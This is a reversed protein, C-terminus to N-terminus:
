SKSVNNLKGDLDTLPAVEEMVIQLLEVELFHCFKELEMSGVSGKPKYNEPRQGKGLGPDRKRRKEFKSRFMAAFSVGICPFRHATVVLSM